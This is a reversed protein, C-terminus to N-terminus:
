PPPPSQRVRAASEDVSGDGMGFGYAPRKRRGRRDGYQEDFKRIATLSSMDESISASIEKIAKEFHRSSLTRKEPLKFDPSDQKSNVLENEERVCALAAAVCLNKLDSGSYLPTQEALDPLSVTEDLAEDKLHIKLISERDKAVPLDVLLRRPLRRLVADDIDFPRNSAVMIFVNHNADMGDWERLFQNIIERHTNRNGASSRSGFIADGEDIFVICPSLKKALSFVARVMKEGEGVYKEYIQAGSIELVTARSEKAVAKALLTKGTGPPGYLMLGPLRDAALVGYKFADPRLLSLSTLTKLADLTETPAHVENFGIKINQADVVGPLLRSEHTNCSKKLKDIKAQAKAPGLTDASLGEKTEPDVHTASTSAHSKMSMWDREKQDSMTTVYAALALHGANVVDSEMYTRSLGIATLVLRQVLDFSLVKQGLLNHNVLKLQRQAGDSFLDVADEPRMQRLMSQVHRLNIELIRRYSTEPCGKLELADGVLGYQFLEEKSVDFWPQVQIKRFGDEDITSDFPIFPGAGADRATTGVIVVKTGAVRSQQVVSVLNRLVMEGTKSNCFDKLDRVHVITRGSSGTQSIDNDHPTLELSLGNDNERRSQDTLYSNLINTVHSRWQYPDQILERHPARPAKEGSALSGQPRRDDSDLSIRHGFNGVGHTSTSVRKIRPADLLSQLLAQLRVELWEIADQRKEHRFGTSQSGPAMRSSVTMEIPLTAVGDKGLAKSLQHRRSYLAKRLSDLLSGPRPNHDTGTRPDEEDEGEDEDMEDEDEEEVVRGPKRPDFAYGDFVEYALNSFPETFDSGSGKYGAALESVDNADIRVIDAQTIDALDEVLDDMKDHAHSDPCVLSVDLRSTAVSHPGGSLAAMDFAARVSTEAELMAWRLLDYPEEDTVINRPAEKPSEAKADSLDPKSPSATRQPGEFKNDFFSRELPKKESVDTQESKAKKKSHSAESEESATYYPLTFLIHGTEKDICRLNKTHRARGNPTNTKVSQTQLKVNHDLFWQPIPPPKEISM